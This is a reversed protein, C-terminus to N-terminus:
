RLGKRPSQSSIPLIHAELDEDIFHLLQVLDPITTDLMDGRIM